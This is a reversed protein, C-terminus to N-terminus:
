LVAKAIAAVAALIAIFKVIGQIMAVHTEIPELKSELINTRRVHEVLSVTNAALTRDISGLRDDIKDIKSELRKFHDDM